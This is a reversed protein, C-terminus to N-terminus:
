KIQCEINFLIYLLGHQEVIPQNKKISKTINQLEVVYIIMLVQQEGDIYQQHFMIVIIVDTMGMMMIVIALAVGIVAISISPSNQKSGNYNKLRLRRAIYLEFKM